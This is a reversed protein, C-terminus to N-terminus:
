QRKSPEIGAAFTLKGVITRHLQCFLSALHNRVELRLVLARRVDHEDRQLRASNSKVEGGRAVHEKYAALAGCRLQCCHSGQHCLAISACAM